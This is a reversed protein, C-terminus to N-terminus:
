HSRFVGAFKHFIREISNPLLGGDEEKVEAASDIHSAVLEVRSPDVSIYIMRSKDPYQMGLRHIAEEEIWDLRSSREIDVMLQERQNQLQELKKEMGAVNHKTETIDAYRGILMLNLLLFAAIYLLLAWTEIMGHRRRAGSSRHNEIGEGKARQPSPTQAQNRYATGISEAYM